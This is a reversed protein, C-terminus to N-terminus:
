ALEEIPRSSLRAAMWNGEDEWDPAGNENLPSILSDSADPTILSPSDRLVEASVNRACKRSYNGTANSRKAERSIRLVM